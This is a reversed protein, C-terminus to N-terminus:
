SDLRLLTFLFLNRELCKEHFVYELVFPYPHYGKGIGEYIHYSITHAVPSRYIQLFHIYHGGLLAIECKGKM